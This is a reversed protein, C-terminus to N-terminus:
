GFGHGLWSLVHLPAYGGANGVADRKRERLEVREEKCHLFEIAFSHMLDFLYVERGLGTLEGQAEAHPVGALLKDSGAPGDRAPSHVGNSTTGM